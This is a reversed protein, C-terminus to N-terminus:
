CYIHLLLKRNHSEKEQLIPFLDVFASKFILLLGWLAVNYHFSKYEHCKKLGFILYVHVTLIHVTTFQSGCEGHPHQRMVCIAICMWNHM